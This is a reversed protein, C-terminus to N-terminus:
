LNVKLNYIEEETLKKFIYGMKKCYQEAAKWKSDNIVYTIAKRKYNRISKDTQRKPLVPPVTQNKPKVEVLYKKIEGNIDKVECYFDVFYRRTRNKSPDKYFSDPLKYPIVVRESSWKLIYQNDDMFHMTRLEYSSRYVPKSNGIYKEPHKPYFFGQTFNGYTM